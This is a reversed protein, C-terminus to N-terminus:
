MLISFKKSITKTTLNLVNEYLMIHVDHIRDM